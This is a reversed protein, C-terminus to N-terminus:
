RVHLSFLLFSGFVLIGIGITRLLKSGEEIQSLIGTGIFIIALAVVVEGVRDMDM